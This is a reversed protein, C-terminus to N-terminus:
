SWRKAWNDSLRRSQKPLVLSLMMVLLYNIPFLLLTNLPKKPSESSLKKKADALMEHLHNINEGSELLLRSAEAIAQEAKAVMSTGYLTKAQRFLM